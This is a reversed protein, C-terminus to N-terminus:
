YKSVKKPVRLNPTWSFTRGQSWVRATEFNTNPFAEPLDVAIREFPAGINCENM